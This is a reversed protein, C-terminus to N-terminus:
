ILLEEREIIFEQNYLISFMSMCGAASFISGSMAQGPLCFKEVYDSFFKTRLYFIEPPCNKEKVTGETMQQGVSVKM